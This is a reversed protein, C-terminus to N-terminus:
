QTPLLAGQVVDLGLEAINYLFKLRLCGIFWKTCQRVTGELSSIFIARKRRRSAIGTIATALM